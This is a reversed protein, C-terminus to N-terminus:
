LDDLPTGRIIDEMEKQAASFGSRRSRYKVRFGSGQNGTSTAGADDSTFTIFGEWFDGLPGGFEQHPPPSPAMEPAAPARECRWCGECLNGCSPAKGKAIIDYAEQIDRFREPDGGKDPHHKLALRRYAKKVEAKSATPELELIQYPGSPGAPTPAPRPPQRAAGAQGQPGRPGEQIGTVTVRQKQGASGYDNHVAIKIWSDGPKQAALTVSGRPTRPYLIVTNDSLIVIHKLMPDAFRVWWSVRIRTGKPVQRAPHWGFPTEFEVAFHKILPIHM